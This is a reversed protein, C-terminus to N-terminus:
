TSSTRIFSPSRPCCCRSAWPSPRMSSCSPRIPSCPGVCGAQLFILAPFFVVLAMVFQVLNFLVTALPLIERPFRIKKVLNADSIISGTSASVSCSFFIWPLIGTILFLTYNELRIRLIFKLAVSYVVIMALPHLLSWALGLLSGGYRIKLDKLILNKLLERYAWISIPLAYVASGLKDNSQGFSGTVRSTQM